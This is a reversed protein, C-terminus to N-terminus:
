KLKKKRSDLYVDAEKAPQTYSNNKWHNWAEVAYLAVLSIGNVIEENEFPLLEYGLIMAGTNIAVLIWAILRVWKNDIKKLAEKM